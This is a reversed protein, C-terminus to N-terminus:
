EKVNGKSLRDNMLKHEKEICHKVNGKSLRDNMLKHEREPKRVGPGWVVLPTLTEEPTGDGHAGILCFAAM